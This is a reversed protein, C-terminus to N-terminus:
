VMGKIESTSDPTDIGRRGQVGLVGYATRREKELMEQEEEAKRRKRLTSVTLYIGVPLLILIFLCPAAIYLLIVLTTIKSDVQVNTSPATPSPTSPPLYALPTPTSM